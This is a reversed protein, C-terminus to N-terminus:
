QVGPGNNSDSSKLGSHKKRHEALRQAETLFKPHTVIVMDEDKVAHINQNPIKGLAAPEFAGTLNNHAVFERVLGDTKFILKGSSLAMEAPMFPDTVDWVVQSNVGKPQLAVIGFKKTRKNRFSLQTNNWLLERGNVIQIYDM